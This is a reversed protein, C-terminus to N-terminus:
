QTKNLAWLNSKICDNFIEENTHNQFVRNMLDDNDYFPKGGNCKLMLNYPKPFCLIPPKGVESLGWAFDLGDKVYRFHINSTSIIDYKGVPRLKKLDHDYVMKEFGKSILYEEFGM